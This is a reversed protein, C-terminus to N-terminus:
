NAHVTYQFIVILLKCHVMYLSVFVLCFVASCNGICGFGVLIAILALRGKIASRHHSITLFGFLRAIM